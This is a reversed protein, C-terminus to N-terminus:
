VRIVYSRGRGNASNGVTIFISNEHGAGQTNGNSNPTYQELWPYIDVFKNVNILM